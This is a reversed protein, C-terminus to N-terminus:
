HDSFSRGKGVPKMQYMLMKCLKISKKAAWSSLVKQNAQHIKTAGKKIKYPLFQYVCFLPTQLDRGWFLHALQLPYIYSSQLKIIVAM